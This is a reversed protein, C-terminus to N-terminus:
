IPIIKGWLVDPLMQANKTTSVPSPTGSAGLPYLGLVSNIVRCHVPCGEWGWSLIDVIGQAHPWLSFLALVSVSVRPRRGVGASRHVFPHQWGGGGCCILGGPPSPRVVTINENEQVGELTGRFLLLGEVCIIYGLFGAVIHM